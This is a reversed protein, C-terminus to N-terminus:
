QASRLWVIIDSRTEAVGKYQAEAESMGELASVLAANLLPDARVIEGDRFSPRIAFIAAQVQPLGWLVQREIRIFLQREVPDFKRGHWTVPDAGPAPDPHHNLRTDSTIGWVFRVYPGRDVMADVLQRARDNVPGIGPVPLHVTAFDTGIKEQAAWHNAACLHIAAVENSSDDHRIVICIDEQVQSCLADFAGVYAPEITSGQARTLRGGPDFCLTEGTRRCILVPGDSDERLQFSQPHEEALRFAIFLAVGGEVRESFADSITVHKDLSERRSSLVVDRFRDFSDDIQFLQADAKGNGYDIGLAALATRVEYRGKDWPTYLPAGPCADATGM